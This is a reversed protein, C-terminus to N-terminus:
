KRREALAQELEEIRRHLDDFDRVSQLKELASAATQAEAPTITGDALAAEITAPSVDEGFEITRGHAKSPLVHALVIEAARLDNDALRNRLVMVAESFLDTVAKLTARSVKNRSGVPRGGNGPAFQGLTNRATLNAPNVPHTMSAASEIWLTRVM